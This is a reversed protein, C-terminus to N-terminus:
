VPVIFRAIIDLSYRRLFLAEPTSPTLMLSAFLTSLQFKVQWLKTHTVM